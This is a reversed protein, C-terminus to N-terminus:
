FVFRFGLAINNWSFADDVYSNKTLAWEPRYDLTFQLFKVIRLSLGLDVALNAHFHERQLGLGVGAGGYFSFRDRNGALTWLKLGTFKWTGGSIYGFDIEHSGIGQFSFEVGGYANGDVGFVGGRIGIANQSFGSLSFLLLLSSIFLIKKMINKNNS